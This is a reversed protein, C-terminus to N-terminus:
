KNRSSKKFNITNTGNIFPIISSRRISYVNDNLLPKIEVLWYGTVTSEAGGDKAKSLFKM